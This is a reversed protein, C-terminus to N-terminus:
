QVGFKLKEALQDLGHLFRRFYPMCAFRWVQQCSVEVVDFGRDELSGPAAGISVELRHTEKLLFFGHALSCRVDSYLEGALRDSDPCSMCDELFTRFDRRAHQDCERPCTNVYLKGCAESFCLLALAATWNCGNEIMSRPDNVMFQFLDNSYLEGRAVRNLKEEFGKWFGENHWFGQLWEKSQNGGPDPYRPDLPTTFTTM